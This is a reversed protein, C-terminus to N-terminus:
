PWVGGPAHQPTTLGALIRSVQQAESIIDQLHRPRLQNAGAGSVRVGLEPESVLAVPQGCGPGHM